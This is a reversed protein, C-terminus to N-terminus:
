IEDQEVKNKKNIFKIFNEKQNEPIIYFRRGQSTFETNEILTDVNKSIHKTINDLFRDDFDMMLLFRIYKSLTWKMSNAMELARKKLLTDARIKIIELKTM